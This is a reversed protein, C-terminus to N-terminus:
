DLATGASRADDEYNTRCAILAGGNFSAEARDYYVSALAIPALLGPAFLLNHSVMAITFTALPLAVHVPDRTRILPLASLGILGVPILWGIPGLALAFLLFSNHPELDYAAAFGLGGFPEQKYVLWARQMPLWRASVSNIHGETKVRRNIGAIIESDHQIAAQANEM